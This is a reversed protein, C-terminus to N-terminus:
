DAARGEYATVTSWAVRQLYTAVDTPLGATYPLGEPSTDFLAAYFACAALYTGALTPHRKDAIRLMIEPRERTVAAFALGVPVVQADLEEGIASYAADLEATMEPMDEYAWTM